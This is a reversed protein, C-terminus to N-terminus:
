LNWLLWEEAGSDMTGGSAFTEDLLSFLTNQCRFRRMEVTEKNSKQQMSTLRRISQANYILAGDYETVFFCIRHRFFPITCCYYNSSM